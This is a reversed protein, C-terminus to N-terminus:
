SGEVRFYITEPRSEALRAVVAESETGVVGVAAPTDPWLSGYARFQYM